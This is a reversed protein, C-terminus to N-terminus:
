TTFPSVSTSIQGTVARPRERQPTRCLLFLPRESSRGREPGERGSRGRFDARRTAAGPLRRATMRVARDVSRSSRRRRKRTEESGPAAPGKPDDGCRLGTASNSRKNLLPGPNPRGSSESEQNVRSAWATRCIGNGAAPANPPFRVYSERQECKNYAHRRAGCSAAVSHARVIGFVSMRGM